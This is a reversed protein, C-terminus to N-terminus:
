DLELEEDLNSLELDIDEILEDEASESLDIDLDLIESDDFEDGIDEKTAEQIKDMESILRKLIEAEDDDFQDEGIVKPISTSIKQSKGDPPINDKGTNLNLTTASKQTPDIGDKEEGDEFAQRKGQTGGLGGTDDGDRNEGKGDGKPNTPDIGDKAEGGFGSTVKKVIDSLGEDTSDKAIVKDAGAPATYTSHKVFVTNLIDGGGETLAEMGALLKKMHEQDVM